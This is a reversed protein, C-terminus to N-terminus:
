LRSQLRGAEDVAVDSRTVDTVDVVRTSALGIAAPDVARDSTRQMRSTESSNMGGLWGGWFADTM